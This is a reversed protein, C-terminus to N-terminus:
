ERTNVLHENQEAMTLWERQPTGDPNLISLFHFVTPDPCFWWPWRESIPCLDARYPNMFVYFGYAELSEGARLRHEFADEQWQWSARGSARALAKFKAQVRGISLRHGLAFLLHAHDPMLCAAFIKADGDRHLRAFTAMLFPATDGRTLVPARGRTCATIFYRAGPDSVRGWRLRATARKPLPM